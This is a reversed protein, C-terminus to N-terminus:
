PMNGVFIADTLSEMREWMYEYRFGKHLPRWEKRPGFRLLLPLHDSRSSCIHEISAEPFISSWHQDAVGRDIRAKVNDAGKQKNDFTWRPGSFGLDFLKCNALVERFSEMNKENRPTRSFHEHQWATENFDGVMLWPENSMPRIRRLLDWMHHRESAKPEGYVFTGRWQRGHPNLRVLVDIYRPGIALEKIEVQEDYFLAIGAGKGNGVHSICHKLGLRRRLKNVYDESKRTESIFVLSPRYTRM